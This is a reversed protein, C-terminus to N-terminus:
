GEWESAEPEFEPVEQAKTRRKPEMAAMFAAIEAKIAELPRSYQSRCNDRIRRPSAPYRKGALNPMTLEITTEGARVLARHQSLRMLDDPKIHDFQRALEDADDPGLKFAVLTDIGSMVAARLDPTLQGTMSQHSLVFSVGFKRLGTLGECITENIFHHAENIFVPFLARNGKTRALAATHFHALLLSGIISAKKIGLRGQPLSAIFIKNQDIVETFNFASKSQGICYRIKPDGILTIIKNLTSLTRDRQEKETMHNAFFDKWFDRIIPDQIKQIVRNRYTPKTLMYNLGLLTAGPTELLAAVATYVFMEVNPANNMHFVTKITDVISSAVFARSDESVGDLVNLSIPFEAPNFYIVDRRRNPPILSLLIEADDDHPDIFVCGRGERIDKIAWNVLTTSKGMGSKGLMYIHRLRQSDHIEYFPHTTRKRRRDHHPYTGLQM